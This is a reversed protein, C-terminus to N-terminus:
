LRTVAGLHVEGVGEALASVLASAARLEDLARQPDILELEDDIGSEAQRAVMWVSKERIARMRTRGEVLASLVEGRKETVRAFWEGDAGERGALRTVITAQRAQVGDLSYSHGLLLPALEGSSRVLSADIQDLKVGLEVLSRLSATLLVKEDPSAFSLRALQDLAVEADAIAAACLSRAAGNGLTAALRLISALEDRRERRRRRLLGLPVLVAGAALLAWTSTWLSGTAFVLVSWACVALAGTRAPPVDSFAWVGRAGILLAIAALAYSLVM